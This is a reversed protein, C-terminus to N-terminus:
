GSCIMGSRNKYPSNSKAVHGTRSKFTFNIAAKTSAFEFKKL